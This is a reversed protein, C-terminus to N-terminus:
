RAHQERLHRQHQHPWDHVQSLNLSVEFSFSAVIRLCAYLSLSFSVSLCCFNLSVSLCCFHLVCKARDLYPGLRDIATFGLLYTGEPVQLDSKSKDLQCSLSKGTRNDKVGLFHDYKLTAMRVAAGESKTATGARAAAVYRAYFREVICLLM